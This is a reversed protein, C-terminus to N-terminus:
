FLHVGFFPTDLGILHHRRRIGVGYGVPGCVGCSNDLVAPQVLTTGCSPAVVAPEVMMQDACTSCGSAGIVAPQVITNDLVPASFGTDLIAPQTIVNGCASANPAAILGIGVAAMAITLVKGFSTM